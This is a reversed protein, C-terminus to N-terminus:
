IHNSTGLTICVNKKVLKIFYHFKYSSFESKLTLSKDVHCIPFVLCWFIYRFDEIYRGLVALLINDLVERCFNSFAGNKKQFEM